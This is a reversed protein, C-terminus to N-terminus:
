LRMETRIPKRETRKTGIIARARRTIMGRWGGSRGAM